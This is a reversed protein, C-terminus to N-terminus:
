KTRVKKPPTTLLKLRRKKERETGRERKLEELELPTLNISRKSSSAKPKISNINRNETENIETRTKVIEKQQKPKM